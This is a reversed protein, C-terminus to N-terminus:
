GVVVDEGYGHKRALDLLREACATSDRGPLYQEGWGILVASVVRTECVWGCLLLLLLFGDM